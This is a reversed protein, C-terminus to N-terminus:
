LRHTYVIKTVVSRDLTTFREGQDLWNNLWVFFVDNGPRVIWRFRSQLGVVKSASDFQVNNAISIWPGFQTNVLARMTRAHVTGEPMQVRSFTANLTALVGPRPRVNLTGALDRRDGTYFSGTTISASASVMRRNATTGEILLRTYRHESGRPLVIGPAVTFDRDLKEYSPTVLVNFTDGSQFNINLATINFILDSMEGTFEGFRETRVGFVFQRILRSNRPRPRFNTSNFWKTFDTREAFGVAPEFNRRYARYANQINWRDNPYDVRIGWATDDGPKLENPTKLYYAGAQVVKSRGFRSTTLFLDAGLTTRDPVLGARDSRRTYIMGISSEQLFLRRPRVVTFTEGASTGQAGTQVQLVGINLGAAQGTLKVGYDIKQPLGRDSLGVRRSFFPTLIQARERGVDFQGSGELFFERKEPFFLPFRTLNVQRDDVETQAFDTNITINAKLQPTLNYGVDLGLDGVSTAPRGAVESVSGLVYPKIDIGRGQNVGSIGVLQGGTALNFLGSNRQWGTWLSEEEKRRVTRQFNIGWAEVTPDFNITRFPIDIEVTWGREHRRVRATWIGDWARNQTTRDNSGGQAPVLQADGMAGAPNVEFFYGSRQNALPDITWMLRDDANLAGDRIMQNGMLRTPESDSLEAGIYLHSSDFVIRIQSAETAPAGNRPDSQTFREAPVARSWMPEDLRGDLDILEGAALREARMTAVASAAPVEQAAVRSAALVCLLVAFRIIYRM